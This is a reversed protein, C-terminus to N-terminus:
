EDDGWIKDWTKKFFGKDEQQSQTIVTGGEDNALDKATDAEFSGEILSVVDNEFVVTIRRKELEKGRRNLSYYYDWRNQHFPDVVLPTGLIYRVERRTMGPELQAVESETVVNGQQIDIQHMKCAGLSLFLVLIFALRVPAM